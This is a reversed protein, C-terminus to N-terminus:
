KFINNETPNFEHWNKLAWTSERLLNYAHADHQMKGHVVRYPSDVLAIQKWGAERESVKARGVWRAGAGRVDAGCHSRLGPVYHRRVKM